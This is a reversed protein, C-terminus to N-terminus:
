ADADPPAEEEQTEGYSAIVPITLLYAFLGVALTAWPWLIALAVLLGGFAIAAKKFPHPVHLNKLSLTPVRSVMLWSMLAIMAASLWPHSFASDKFQFALPGRNSVVVTDALRGDAGPPGGPM